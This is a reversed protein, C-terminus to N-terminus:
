EIANIMMWTRSAKLLDGKQLVTKESLKKERNLIYTGHPSNQPEILWQDEEFVFRGQPRGLEDDWPFSLLGGVSGTWETEEKLEIVHGDLPGTLVEIEIRKRESM